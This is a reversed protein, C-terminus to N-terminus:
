VERERRKGDGKLKKRGEGATEVTTVRTTAQALVLARTLVLTVQLDQDRSLTVEEEEQDLPAM